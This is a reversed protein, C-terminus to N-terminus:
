EDDSDVIAKSLGSPRGLRTLEQDAVDMAEREKERKRGKREKGEDTGEKKKRRTKKEKREEDRDVAHADSHGDTDSDGEQKKRKAPRKAEEEEAQEKLEREKRNDEKVKQMIERRAREIEEREKQLKEQRAREAEMQSREVRQQELKIAQLREIQQEELVSTEHIKKESLRQLDKSYSARERALKADYGHSDKKDGLYAFLRKKETLTVTKVSIPVAQRQSLQLGVLATKLEGVTRRDAPQDNMVQAYQQKVLALDYWLAHKGPEMRIARQICLLSQRMAAPDKESKAVIYNARALCQLIYAKENSKKLVREYHMIALKPQGLETLVHALGISVPPMNVSGELVQTFVERAREFHGLEALCIGVGAAGFVNKSDVRVAKDFFELARKIHTEKLKSDIRSIVLYINGISCLAFHDHKDAKQLVEEFTKRAERLNLKNSADDYFSSGLMLLCSKRDVVLGKRIYGRSEEFNPAMAALRLYCDYYSPHEDVISHYEAAAKEFNGIHEDLRAMNYRVTIKLDAKEPQANKSADIAALARLYYSKALEYDDTTQADRHYLAGINNLVEIASATSDQTELISLANLYGKLATKLNIGEYIKALEMQMVPDPFIVANEEDAKTDEGNFKRILAQLKGFFFLSKDAFKPHDACVSAVKKLAELNEPDKALIKEFCDLAKQHEGNQIHMQGLGFIYPISSPGVDTAKSYMESAEAFKGQAHFSKALIGQAEAKLSASDTNAIAAKAVLEAKQYLGKFYMGEGVLNLVSSNKKNSEFAAKVREIAQELLEANGDARAQNWEVRALLALADSNRPDIEVARTFAASAEDAMQLRHYCVGIALRPDPQMTPYLSLIKQYTKLAGKYDNTRLQASGLGVLAAANASDENLAHMFAKIADPNKSAALNLSGRVVTTWVGRSDISEARNFIETAKSLLSTRSAQETRQLMSAREIYYLKTSMLKEREAGM